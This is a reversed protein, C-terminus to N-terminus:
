PSAMARARRVQEARRTADSEREAFSRLLEHAAEGLQRVRQQRRAEALEPLVAVTTPASSLDPRRATRRAGSSACTSVGGRKDRSGSSRVHGSSPPANTV